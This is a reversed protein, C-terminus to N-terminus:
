DGGGGAAVGARGHFMLLALRDAITRTESQADAWRHGVATSMRVNAGAVGHAVTHHMAEHPLVEHGKGLAHLLVPARQGAVDDRLELGERAAAHERAPEHTSAACAAAVVAQHREQALM